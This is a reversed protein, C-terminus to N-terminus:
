GGMLLGANVTPLQGVERSIHIKRQLQLSNQADDLNAQISLMPKAVIALEKSALLATSRAKAESIDTLLNGVFQEYSSSWQLLTGLQAAVTRGVGQWYVNTKVNCLMLQRLHSDKMEGAAKAIQLPDGTQIAKLAKRLTAAEASMEESRLAIAKILKTLQDVYQNADAIKVAADHTDTELDSLVTQLDAVNTKIVEIEPEDPIPEYPEVKLFEIAWQVFGAGALGILALWGLSSITELTMRVWVPFDPVQSAKGTAITVVLILVFIKATRKLKSTM